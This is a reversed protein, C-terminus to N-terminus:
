VEFALGAKLLKEYRVRDFRYLRGGPGRRGQATKRTDKLVEFRKVKRRFGRRDLKKGLITEYVRQLDALTFEQPLLDIGVPQWPLKSKLRALAADIIKQHDFALEPLDAVPFWAAKAADDGAQVHVKVPSVLMIYATSIVRGRPDRGIDSFTALQEYYNPQIGIEERMERLLAAELNDDKLIDIFGGPLAWSGFFPEGKHGREILLVDLKWGAPDMFIGFVVADVTNSAMPFKYKYEPM